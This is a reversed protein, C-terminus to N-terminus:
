SQYYADKIGSASCNASAMAALRRDNGGFRSDAEEGTSGARAQPPHRPHALSPLRAEAEVSGSRMLQDNGRFRSDLVKGRM